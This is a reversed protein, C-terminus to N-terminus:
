FSVSTLERLISAPFLFKPAFDLLKFRGGASMLFVDLVDAAAVVDNDIAALFRCNEGDQDCFQLSGNKYLFLFHYSKGVRSIWVMPQVQRSFVISKKELDYAALINAKVFYLVGDDLFASDIGSESFVVTKEYATVYLAPQSNKNFLFLRHTGSKQSFDMTKLDIDAPAFIYEYSFSNTLLSHKIALVNSDRAIAFVGDESVFIDKLPPVDPKQIIGDKLVFFVGADDIGAFTRESFAVLKKFSLGSFEQALWFQSPRNLDIHRLYRLNENCLLVHSGSFSIVKEQPAIHIESFSFLPDDAAAQETQPMLFLPKFKIIEDEVVSIKKAWTFFGDKKIEVDYNGPLLDLGAPPAATTERGNIFIKAKHPIKEFYVVGNKKFVGGDRDYRYGAAFFFTLFVIATFVVAGAAPLFKLLNRKAM